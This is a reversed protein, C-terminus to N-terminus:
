DRGRQRDPPHGTDTRRRRRTPGMTWWVIGVFLALAVGAELLIWGMTNAENGGLARGSARPGGEVVPWARAGIDSTSAAAKASASAPQTV